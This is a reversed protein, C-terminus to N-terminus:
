EVDREVAVEDLPEDSGEFAIPWLLRFARETPGHFFMKQAVSKLRRIRWFYSLFGAAAAVVVALPLLLVPWAAAVTESLSFGRSSYERLIATIVSGGGLGAMLLLGGVRRHWEIERRLYDMGEQVSAM